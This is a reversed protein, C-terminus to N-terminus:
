EVSLSSSFVETDIVKEDKMVELELILDYIGPVLGLIKIAKRPYTFAQTVFEGRGPSHLTAYVKITRAETLLVSTVAIEYGGTPKEGAAIILVPEGSIVSTERFGKEEVVGVSIGSEISREIELALCEYELKKVADELVSEYDLVLEMVSLSYGREFSLLFPKM